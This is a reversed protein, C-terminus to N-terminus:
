DQWASATHGQGQALYKINRHRLAEDPFHFYHTLHSSLYNFPDLTALVIGSVYYTSLASLETARSEFLLSLEQM